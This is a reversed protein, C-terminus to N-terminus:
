LLKVQIAVKDIFLQVDWLALERRRKLNKFYSRVVEPHEQWCKYYDRKHVLCGGKQGFWYTPNGLADLQIFIFREGKNKAWMLVGVQIGTKGQLGKLFSYKYSDFGTLDKDLTNSHTWDDKQFPLMFFKLGDKEVLIEPKYPINELGNAFLIVEIKDSIDAWGNDKLWNLADIRFQKTNFKEKKM